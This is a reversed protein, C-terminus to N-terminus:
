FKYVISTILKLDNKLRGTAPVNNYNDDLVTRLAFRNNKSLTAEVGLEANLIYNNINDVQPLIEATEWWRAHPSITYHFKEGLRVSLYQDASTDDLKELIYGPGLEASLDMKKNKLFYYGAGAGLTFRYDIDAIGDHLADFRGYAYWRDGFMRNYQLFAHDRDATEQSPGGGSVKSEGYLAEGGLALDNDQWKKESSATASALLTDSNGRTITLGLAVSSQWKNTMAASNTGTNVPPNIQARASVTGALVLFAVALRRLFKNKM